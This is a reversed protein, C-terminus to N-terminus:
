LPSKVGRSSARERLALHANIFEIVLLCMEFRCGCASFREVIQDRSKRIAHPDMAAMVGVFYELLADVQQNAPLSSIRKTLNAFSNPTPEARM